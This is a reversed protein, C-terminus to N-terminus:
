LSAVFSHDLLKHRQKTFTLYESMANLNTLFPKGM